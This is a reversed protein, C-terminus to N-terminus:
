FKVGAGLHFLLDGDGFKFATDIGANFYAMRYNFMFGIECAVGNWAHYQDHWIEGSLSHGNAWKENIEVYGDSISSFSSTLHEVFIRDNRYNVGAYVYIPSFLRYVAGGGLVMTSAKYKGSMAMSAYLDAKGMNDPATTMAFHAYFGWQKAVAVRAGLPTCGNSTHMAEVGAFVNWRSPSETWWTLPKMKLIMGPEYSKKVSRKGTSSVILKRPFINTPFFFSGDLNSTYVEDSGAVQVQANPIARGKKDVVYGTVHTQAFTVPAVALLLSFVIARKM